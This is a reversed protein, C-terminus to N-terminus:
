VYRRSGYPSSYRRLILPRISRNADRDSTCNHIIVNNVIIASFLLITSIPVDRARSDSCAVRGVIDSSSAEKPMVMRWRRFKRGEVLMWAKMWAYIGRTTAGDRFSWGVRRAFGWLCRFEIEAAWGASCIGSSVGFYVFAEFLYFKAEEELGMSGFAWGKLLM